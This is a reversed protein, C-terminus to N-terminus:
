LFRALLGDLEKIGQEDVSDYEEDSLGGELILNFAKRYTDEAVPFDFEPDGFWGKERGICFHFNYKVGSMLSRMERITKITGIRIQKTIKDSLRVESGKNLTQDLNDKNGENM